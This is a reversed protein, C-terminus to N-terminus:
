VTAAFIRTSGSWSWGAVGPSYWVELLDGAVATDKAFRRIVTDVLKTTTGYYGLGAVSEMLYVGNVSMVLRGALDYGSREFEVIYTSDQLYAREVWTLADAPPTTLTASHIRVAGEQSAGPQNPALWVEIRDEETRPLRPYRLEAWDGSYTAKNPTSYYANGSHSEMLYSGNHRVILRNPGDFAEADYRVYLDNGVVYILRVWKKAEAPIAYVKLESTVSTGRLTATITHMEYSAPTFTGAPLDVVGAANVYFSRRADAEDTWAINESLYFDVPLGTVGGTENTVKVSTDVNLPVGAVGSVVTPDSWALAYVPAPGSTTITVTTTTSILPEALLRAIITFTGTRTASIPEATGGLAAVPGASTLVRSGSAGTGNAGWVLGDPLSVVVQHSGSAPIGGQYVNVAFSRIAQGPATTAPKPDFVLSLNANSAAAAPSAVSAAIVPASWAAAAMMTRRSLGQDKDATAATEEVGGVAGKEDRKM